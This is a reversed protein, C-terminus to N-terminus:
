MRIFFLSVGDKGIQILIGCGSAFCNQFRRAPLGFIADARRSEEVKGEPGVAILDADIEMVIPRPAIHRVRREDDFAAFLGEQM